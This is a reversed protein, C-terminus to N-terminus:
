INVDMKWMPLSPRSRRPVKQAHAHMAFCSETSVRSEAGLVARSAEQTVQIDVRSCDFADGAPAGREPRDKAVEAHATIHLNCVLPLSRRHAFYVLSVSLSLKWITYSAPMRRTSSLRTLPSLAAPAAPSSVSEALRQVQLWAPCMSVM